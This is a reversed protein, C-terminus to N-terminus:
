EAHSLEVLVALATAVGPEEIEGRCRRGVPLEERTVHQLGDGVLSDRLFLLTIRVVRGQGAISHRARYAVVHLDVGRLGKAICESPIKAEVLRIFHVTGECIGFDYGHLLRETDRRFM